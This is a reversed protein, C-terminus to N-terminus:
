DGAALVIMELEVAANFPLSAVGIASRTHIGVDGFVHQLFQSAGNIVLHQETFDPMSNVFGTLKIIRKVNDLDAVHKIAALCNLACIRAADCAQDISLDRGLKGTFKIEGKMIPIQGSVYLFDQVRLAPIYAALPQTPEPLCLGIEQIRKEVESLISVGIFDKKILKVM